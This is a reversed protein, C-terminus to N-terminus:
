MLAERMAKGQGKHCWSQIGVVLLEEDVEIPDNGVFRNGIDGLAFRDGRAVTVRLCAVLRDGDAAPRVGAFWPFQAHFGFCFGFSNPLDVFLYCVM